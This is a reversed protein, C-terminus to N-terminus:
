PGFRAAYQGQALQAMESVLDGAKARFEEYKDDQVEEVFDKALMGLDRLVSYSDATLPWVKRRHERAIDVITEALEDDILDDHKSRLEVLKGAADWLKLGHRRYWAAEKRGVKMGTIGRLRHDREARESAPLGLRKARGRLIRQDVAQASRVGLPPAMLIQAVGLKRGLLLLEFELQDITAPLHPIWRRIYALIWLADIVDDDTVLHLPQIRLVHQVVPFPHEFPDDHELEDVYPDRAARRRAIIRQIADQGAVKDLDAAAKGPM